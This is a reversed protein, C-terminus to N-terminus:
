QILVLLDTAFHTRKDILHIYGPTSTLSCLENGSNSNVDRAWWNRGRSNFDGIVISCFPSTDDIKSLTLHFNQCYNEFEDPTQSPFRYNCTSFISKKEM